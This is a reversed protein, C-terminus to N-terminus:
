LAEVYQRQFSYVCPRGCSMHDWCVCDETLIVHLEATASFGRSARCLSNSRVAMCVLVSKVIKLHCPVDRPKEAVTLINKKETKIHKRIHV